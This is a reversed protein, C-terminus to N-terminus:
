DLYKNVIEDFKGSERIKKLGENLTQLLEKNGEQVAYGYAEGTRFFGLIKVAKGKKVVREATTKDQVTADVKGSILAQTAQPYTEFLKQELDYGEEILNKRVWEAGTTNSQNSITAGHTLAEFMHLDSDERALVAMETFWYPDTFDVKKEREETISMGGGTMDAKGMNVMPILSSWSSVTFKVNFDQVKAIERIIDIDIGVLEGEDNYYDWPAWAAETAFTYTPKDAGFALLGSTLVIGLILILSVASFTRNQM